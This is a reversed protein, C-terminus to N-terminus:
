TCLVPSSLTFWPQSKCERMNVQRKTSSGAVPLAVAATM